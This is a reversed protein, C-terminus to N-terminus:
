ATGRGAGIVHLFCKTPGPASFHISSSTLPARNAKRLDHKERVPMSINVTIGQVEELTTVACSSSSSHRFCGWMRPSSQVGIGLVTKFYSVGGCAHPLRKGITATANLRLFVGVHTPFVISSNAHFGIVYFCGWMRPSSAGGVTVPIGLNSVGGCAHPLSCFEPYSQKEYLFVGVHTPFVTGFSTSWGGNWFCGWMRPSSRAIVGFGSRKGSVGGCAHPLRNLEHTAVVNVLFVGM